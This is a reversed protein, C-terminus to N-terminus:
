CGILAIGHKSLAIRLWGPYILLTDIFFDSTTLLSLFVFKGTGELQRMDVTSCLECFLVSFSEYGRLLALLSTKFQQASLCICLAIM